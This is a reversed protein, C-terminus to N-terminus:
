EHHDLLYKNQNMETMTEPRARRLTRGRSEDQSAEESHLSSLSTSTSRLIWVFLSPPSISWRSISRLSWRTVSCTDLCHSTVHGGLKDHNLVTVQNIDNM